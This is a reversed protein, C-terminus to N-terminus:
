NSNKYAPKVKVPINMEDRVINVIVEDEYDITSLRFILDSRTEVAFLGDKTKISIIKDGVQLGAQAAPKSADIEKIVNGVELSVGIIAWRVEKYKELDHLVKEVIITPISLGYSGGENVIMNSNIGIVRGKSDLLPGGSNGNYIDADTQIFFNMSDPKQLLDRSIIGKSASWFLGWPHGIAYVEDLLEYDRTMMLIKYNNEKKFTEIDVIKIAAVDSAKDSHILEAAYTKENGETAIEIKTAGEIVHHNTLIINEAVFFGTGLGGAQSNLDTKKEALVAVIGRKQDKIISQTDACATVIFVVLLSAIITKLKSM